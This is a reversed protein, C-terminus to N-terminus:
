ETPFLFEATMDEWVLMYSHEKVRKDFTIKRYQPLGYKRLLRECKKVSKKGCITHIVKIIEKMSNTLLM